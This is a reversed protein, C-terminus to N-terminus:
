FLCNVYLRYGRSVLDLGQIYTLASSTSAEFARLNAVFASTVDITRQRIKCSLRTRVYEWGILAVIACLALAIILSSTAGKHNIYHKFRHVLWVLALVLITCIIAGEVSATVIAYEQENSGHATLTSLKVANSSSTRDSCEDLLQSAVLLYRFHEM